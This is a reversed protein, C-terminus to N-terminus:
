AGLEKKIRPLYLKVTSLGAGSEEALQEQTCKQGADLKQQYTHKILDYKSANKAEEIPMPQLSNSQQSQPSLRIAEIHNSKLSQPSLRISETHNSTLSKKKSQVKERKAAVIQEDLLENSRNQARVFSIMIFVIIALGARVDVFLEPSIGLKLMAQASDAIGWLVQYGLIANIAIAVVSLILGIYLLGIMAFINSKHLRTSWLKDWTAFFLGDISMAQIIAWAMVYWPQIALGQLNFVAITGLAMSAIALPKIAELIFVDWWANFKKLSTNM